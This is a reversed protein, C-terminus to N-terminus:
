LYIDSADIKAKNALIAVKQMAAPGSGDTDVFLAGTKKRYIVFDDADKAKRGYTFNEANLIDPQRPGASPGTPIFDFPMVLVDVGPKFDMIVDADRGRAPVERFVFYDAGSGGILVDRAGLGELADGGGGGILIDHGDGGKLGNPSADGKRVIGEGPPLWDFVDRM